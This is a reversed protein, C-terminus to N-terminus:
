LVFLLVGIFDTSESNMLIRRRNETVIIVLASFLIALCFLGPVVRYTDSSPRGRVFAFLDFAFTGTNCNKRVFDVCTFPVTKNIGEVLVSFEFKLDSSVPATVKRFRSPKSTASSSNGTDGPIRFELLLKFSAKFTYRNSLDFSFTNPKFPLLKLTNPINDPPCRAARKTWFSLSISCGSCNIRILGDLM